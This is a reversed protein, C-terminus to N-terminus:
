LNQALYVLICGLKMYLLFNSTLLGGLTKQSRVDAATLQSVPAGLVTQKPTLSQLVSSFLVYGLNETANCHNLQRVHILAFTAHRLCPSRPPAPPMGGGGRSIQLIPSELICNGAKGLGSNQCSNDRKKAITHM